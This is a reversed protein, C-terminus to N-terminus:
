LVERAESLAQIPVGVANRAIDARLFM